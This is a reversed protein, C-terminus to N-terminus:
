ASTKIHKFSMLDGITTKTGQDSIVTLSELDSTKKFEQWQEQVELNDRNKPDRRLYITDELLQKIELADLNDLILL